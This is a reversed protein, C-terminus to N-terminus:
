NGAIKKLESDFTILNNIGYLKMLALTSCDTFSLKNKKYIAWAQQFCQEDIRISDIESGLIFEGLEVSKKHNKTRVFATTLTEDFIYDSLFPKGFKGETCEKMLEKASDHHVDRKNSLAVFIGTDILVSM